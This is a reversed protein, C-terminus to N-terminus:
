SITIVIKGQTKGEYIDRLGEEAKELPLVRGIYPKIGKEAVFNLLDGFEERTGTYVGTLNIQNVLIPFMDVPVKTAGGESHIGCIVVTGGPKTSAISHNITAAGSTDFVADVLRPLTQLPEFTQEAGLHKAIARKAETRGTTWVRYGAASGLQILATTVGAFNGNTHTVFLPNSFMGGSSGQVLVTQGPRLNAKVFMMRFATLWAVGMVSAVQANLGGPRPVANRKPVWIYEALTGQEIEGLVHRKPDITEDGKFDSDGLNPYLAVETGDDLVGAGENGLIMPFKIKHMGLGRLTFIDHFNLGVAQMRVRVYGEKPPPANRRRVRISSLPDDLNAGAAYVTWVTDKKPDVDGMDVHQIKNEKITFVLFLEFPETIGFEAAFDGDMLVHLYTRGDPLIEQALVKVSAKHGIVGHEVFLRIGDGRYSKGDDTIEADSGFASLALEVNATNVGVIYREVPGQTTM